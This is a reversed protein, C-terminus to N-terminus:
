ICSRKGDNEENRNKYEKQKERQEDRNNEHM